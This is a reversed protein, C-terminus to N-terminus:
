RLAERNRLDIMRLNRLMPAFKMKVLAKIQKVADPIGRKEAERALLRIKKARRGSMECCREPADESTSATIGTIWVATGGSM